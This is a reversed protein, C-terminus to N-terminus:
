GQTRRIKDFLNALMHSRSAQHLPAKSFVFVHNAVQAKKPVVPM